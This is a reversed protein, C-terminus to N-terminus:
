LHEEPLDLPGCAEPSSTAGSYTACNIAVFPHPPDRPSLGLLCPRIRKNTSSSCSGCAFSYVRRAIVSNSQLSSKSTVM